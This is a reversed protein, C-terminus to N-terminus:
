VHARGIEWKRLDGSKELANLLAEGRESIKQGRATLAGEKSVFGQEVLSALTDNYTQRAVTLPKKRAISVLIPLAWQRNFLKSLDTM